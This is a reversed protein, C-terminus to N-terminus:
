LREDGTALFTIQLKQSSSVGKCKANGVELKSQENEKKSHIWAMIESDNITQRPTCHARSGVFGQLHERVSPHCPAHPAHDTGGSKLPFEDSKMPLNHCNKPIMRNEVSRGNQPAFLISFVSDDGPAELTGRSIVGSRGVAQPRRSTGHGLAISVASNEKDQIDEM